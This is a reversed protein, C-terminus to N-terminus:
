MFGKSYDFLRHCYLVVKTFRRLGESFNQILRALWNINVERFNSIYRGM